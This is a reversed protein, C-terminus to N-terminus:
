KKSVGRVGWVKGSDLLMEGFFLVVLTSTSSSESVVVFSASDKKKPVLFAAFTEPVFIYIYVIYM